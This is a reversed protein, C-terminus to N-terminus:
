YCKEQKRQAVLKTEKSAGSVPGLLLTIIFFISPIGKHKPKYIGNLIGGPIALIPGYLVGSLFRLVCLGAFTQVSGCGVAFIAGV